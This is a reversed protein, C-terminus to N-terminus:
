CCPRAIPGSEACCEACPARRSRSSMTAPSLAISSRTFGAAAMMGVCSRVGSSGGRLRDAHFPSGGCMGCARGRLIGRPEVRKDILAGETATLAMLMPECAQEAENFTSFPSGGVKIAPKDNELARWSAVYGPRGQLGPGTPSEPSIAFSYENSNAHWIKLDSQSAVVPSFHLAMHRERNTFLKSTLNKPQVRKGGSNQASWAGRSVRHRRGPSSAAAPSPAPGGRPCSAVGSRAASLFLDARSAPCALGISSPRM